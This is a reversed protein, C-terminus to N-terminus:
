RNKVEDIAIGYHEGVVEQITQNNKKALKEIQYVKADVLFRYWFAQLTHSIFGEKGDLFSLRFFYRYVFYLFPRMFLPVNYYINEKICRKGETKNGLFNAVSDIKHM